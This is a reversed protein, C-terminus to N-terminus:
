QLFIVEKKYGGEKGTYRSGGLRGDDEIIELVGEPCAEVCPANSCHNCLVPITKYKTDPFKGSTEHLFDAWNYTQGNSRLATNNETKCALACAGCGVCKRLDIVM